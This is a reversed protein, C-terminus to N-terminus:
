FIACSNSSRCVWSGFSRIVLIVIICVSPGCNWSCYSAIKFIYFFLIRNSMGTSDKFSYNWSTFFTTVSIILTIDTVICPLSVNFFSETVLPTIPFGKTLRCTCLGTLFSSVTCSATSRLFCFNRSETVVVFCYYSRGCTCFLTVCCVCTWYTIICIWCVVYICVTMSECCPCFCYCRCTFCVTLIDASTINTTCFAFLNLRCESM